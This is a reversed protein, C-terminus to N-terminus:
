VTPGGTQPAARAMEEVSQFSEGMYKYVEDYKQELKEGQTKAFRGYEESTVTCFLEFSTDIYWM